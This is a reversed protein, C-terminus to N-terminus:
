LRAANEVVVSTSGRDIGDVRVVTYGPLESALFADLARQHASTTVSYKTVNVAIGKACRVAIPTSYSFLTRGDTWIAKGMQSATSRLGHHWRTFADLSNKRPM